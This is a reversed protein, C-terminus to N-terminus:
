LEEVTFRLGTNFYPEQLVYLMYSIQFPGGHMGLGGQSTTCPPRSGLASSESGPEQVSSNPARPFSRILM